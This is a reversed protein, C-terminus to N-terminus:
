RQMGKLDPAAHEFVNAPSEQDVRQAGEHIGLSSTAPVGKSGEHSTHEQIAPKKRTCTEGATGREGIQEAIRRQERQRDERTEPDERWANRRQAPQEWRGYRERQGTQGQRNRARETRRKDRHGTKGRHTRETKTHVRQRTETRNTKKKDGGQIERTHQKKKDKTKM